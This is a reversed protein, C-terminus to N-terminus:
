VRAVPHGEPCPYKGVALWGGDVKLLRDSAIRREVECGCGLKLTVRTTGEGAPARALIAIARQSAM